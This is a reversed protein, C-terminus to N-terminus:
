TSANARASTTREPRDRTEPLSLTTAVRWGRPEHPGAQVTGGFVLARERMGVLGQGLRQGLQGGQVSVQDAARPQGDNTVSVELRDERRAVVVIVKEVNRGHKLVNTLSEQVIRYTALQASPSVSALDGTTRLEVDLGATRVLGALDDLQATTPHPRLDTDEAGDEQRLVGLLRHMEALAQRGVESAQEVTDRAQGPSGVAVAADNLTIMVSLSHAVVDHLERAIRSREAAVAMQAQQERAREANEAREKLSWTWARRTRVYLGAGWAATVTGSLMLASFLNEGPQWRTVAMVVGLQAVVVAIVLFWRGRSGTARTGLTYLAVLVAIDGMVPPGWAWQALCVLAVLAAMVEPYARRAILPAALALDWWLAGTGRQDPGAVDMLGAVVVLFGALAIDEAARRATEGRRLAPLSLNSM